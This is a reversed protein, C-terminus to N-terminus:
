PNANLKYQARIDVSTQVTRQVPFNNKEFRQLSYKMDTFLQQNDEEITGVFVNCYNKRPTLSDHHLNLSRNM